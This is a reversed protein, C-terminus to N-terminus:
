SKNHILSKNLLQLLQEPQQNIDALSYGDLHNLFADRAQNLINKLQCVPIIPCVPKECDVMELNAEMKRVVEGLKITDSSHNLQIGGGKGRTTIIFNLKGLEHVIKVIHNRSLSFCQTIESINSRKDKEQLSLYILVRLAYETKQTLQM